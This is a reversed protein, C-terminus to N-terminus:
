QQVGSMKSKKAYREVFYAAMSGQLKLGADVETANLNANRLLYEAYMMIAQHTYKPMQVTQNLSDFDDPYVMCDVWITDDDGFVSIPPDFKLTDAWWSFERLYEADEGEKAKGGPPGGTIPNPDIPLVEKTPFEDSQKWNIRNFGSESSKIFYVARVSYCGSPLGYYSRGDVPKIKAIREVCGVETAIGTQAMSFATMIQSNTYHTRGTTSDPEGILLRFQGLLDAFSTGTTTTSTCLM